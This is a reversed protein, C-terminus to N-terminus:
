ALGRDRNKMYAWLISFNFLVPNPHLASSPVTVTFVATLVGATITCAVSSDSALTLTFSSATSWNGNNIQYSLNDIVGGPTALTVTATYTELRPNQQTSFNPTSVTQEGTGFEPTVLSQWSLVGNVAALVQLDTGAELRSPNGSADGVVLDGQSTIASPAASWQPRPPSAVATLYQGVSGIPLRELRNPAVAYFLDGAAVAKAPATERLNNSVDNLDQAKLQPGDIWTKPNKWPM